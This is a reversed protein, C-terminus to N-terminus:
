FNVVLGLEAAKQLMYKYATEYDNPIIGDLIAERVASGAISKGMGGQMSLIINRM